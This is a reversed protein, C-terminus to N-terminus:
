PECSEELARTEITIVRVRVIVINKMKQSKHIFNMKQETIPSGGTSIAISRSEATQLEL